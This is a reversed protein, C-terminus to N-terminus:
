SPLLCVILVVAVVVDSVMAVNENGTRAKRLFHNVGALTYFVSGAIAAPMLWAPWPLSGAAICGIAMSGFGLERVLVRSEQEKFGLVVHAAARPQIIQRLGAVLLRVGVAWFVFWKLLISFAFAGQNAQFVEFTTCGIPVVFMLAVVM